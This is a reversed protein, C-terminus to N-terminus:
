LNEQALEIGYTFGKIGYFMDFYTEINDPMRKIIESVVTTTVANGLLKYRQTDSIEQVKRDNTWNDPFAQLRECELPTLRRISDEIEYLGTKAGLGGGNSRLTTAVGGVDYVREAMGNKGFYGVQRLGDSSYRRPNSHVVYPIKRIDTGGSARLTPSVDKPVVGSTKNHWALLTIHPHGTKRTITNCVRKERKTGMEHSVTESEGIPFVEPRPEGRIHGVIFVRERHQPVGFEQSDLVQWQVRYGADALIELIRTFVKGDQSSFLGTVNELLFYRPRKHELIRKIEFFLAGRPDNFGLRKGSISFSPCPFGACLLDFNPLDSPDITRADGYNRHKPYHYKSVAIAYKDIECGGVCEM